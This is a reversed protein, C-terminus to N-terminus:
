AHRPVNGLTVTPLGADFRRQIEDQNFQESSKERPM